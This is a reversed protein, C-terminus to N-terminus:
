EWYGLTQGKTYFALMISNAGYANPHVDDTVSVGDYMKIDTTTGGGILSAPVQGLAMRETDLASATLGNETLGNAILYDRLNLWHDGFATAAKEEYAFTINRMEETRLHKGASPGCIIHKEGGAAAFHDVMLQVQNLLVDANEDWGSNCGLNILMIDASNLATDAKSLVETGDAVEVAAGATLRTFNYVGGGANTITGEVGSITCPNFNGGASFVPNTGFTHGDETTLTVAVAEVAAPITFAGVKLANGGQRASTSTTYEGSVAQNKITFGSIKDGLRTPWDTWANNLSSTSDGWVTIVDGSESGYPVLTATPLSAIATQLATYVDTDPIAYITCANNLSSPLGPAAVETLVTIKKLSVCGSFCYRAYTANINSGSVATNFTGVTSPVFGEELAACGNFANTMNTLSPLGYVKKLSTCNYFMQVGDSYGNDRNTQISSLDQVYELSSCGYFAAQFSICKVINELGEVFKLASCGYFANNLSTSSLAPFGKIGILATCGNFQQNYGNLSNFNTASGCFSAGEELTVYQVATNGAFTTPSVYVPSYETGNYTISAPVIVNTYEGTYAKLIAGYSANVTMGEVDAETLVHGGDPVTTDVSYVDGTLYVTINTDTQLEDSNRLIINATIDEDIDGCTVSVFQFVDWDDPTFTLITKDFTLANSDTLATVTQNQTPKASLKVGLQVTQGKAISLIANDVVPDGYVTPEEISGGSVNLGNGMPKGGLFIYVLGDTHVGLTLTSLDVNQSSDGSSGGSGSGVAKRLENIAAVLSGKAETELESLEGITELAAALGVIAEIPHQNVSDLGALKSHDTVVEVEVKYPESLGPFTISVLQKAM